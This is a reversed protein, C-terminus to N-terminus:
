TFINLYLFLAMLWDPYFVHGLAKLRFVSQLNDVNNNQAYRKISDLM